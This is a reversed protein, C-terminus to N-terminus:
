FNLYYELIKKSPSVLVVFTHPLRIQFNLVVFIRSMSLKNISVIYCGLLNEDKVGTNM